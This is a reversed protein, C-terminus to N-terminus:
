KVYVPSIYYDLQKDSLEKNNIALSYINTAGIDIELMRKAIPTLNELQPIKNIIPLSAKDKMRKLLERGRDNFALIRIYQPGGAEKFEIIDQKKISLLLHIIIRQLRTYTYRKSKVLNFLEQLSSCNLSSDKIKNELGEVVDQIERLEEFSARRLLTFISQQFDDAFVPGIGDKFSVTLLNYTTEPVTHKIGLLLNDKKLFERIATASAINGELSTSHYPAKKRLITYPIISSNMERLVKLYEISLINNPTEVLDQVKDLIKQNYTGKERLYQILGKSRAVPFSLGEKLLEKLFGEFSAPSDVFVKAIEKLLELDGEESGFCITDVIGLQDLLKVSGYAFWEASSSAYVTPIELILDVGARVAMEARAWKHILAPEGRQLFNGSMVAISHTSNTLKISEELHYLHGNHFPNYETILGLVKM